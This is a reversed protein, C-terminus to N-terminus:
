DEDRFQGFNTPRTTQGGSMQWKWERAYERQTRANDKKIEEVDIGLNPGVKPLLGHEKQYAYIVKQDYAIRSKVQHRPMNREYVDLPRNYRKQVEAYDEDIKAIRQKETEAAALEEASPKPEPTEVALTVAPTVSGGNDIGALDRVHAPAEPVPVPVPKLKKWRREDELEKLMRNVRRETESDTQPVSVPPVAPAPPQAELEKVKLERERKADDRRQIAM